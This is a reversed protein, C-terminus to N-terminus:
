KLLPPLIIGCEAALRYCTEILRSYEDRKALESSKVCETVRGAIEFFEVGFCEAKVSQKVRDPAEGIEAAFKDVLLHFGNRQESTKDPQYRDITVLWEHEDPLNGVAACIQQQIGGRTRDPKIIYRIM